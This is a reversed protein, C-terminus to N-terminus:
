DARKEFFKVLLKKVDVFPYKNQLQLTKEIQKDIFLVYGNDNVNIPRHKLSLLIKEFEASINKAEQDLITGSFKERVFDVAVDSLHTMDTAFFRYDRLEDLVLEYSPFYSILDNGFLSILEETAMLLTSKSLQNDHAGDKFHRIPSVTFVLELKPNLKRLQGILPIWIETIQAISLRFREFTAAPLKHCNSVITGSIKHQFVWSTGFTIFLHHCNKLTDSAETAQLNINKLVNVPDPGSFRGHHFFSHYLGDSFFLDQETFRKGEILLGLSNAISVPNYLIGFPNVLIPFCLEQLYNGINEAFCSGIMMSPHRYGMKAKFDPLDVETRFKIM